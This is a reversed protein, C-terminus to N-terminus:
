AEDSKDKILRSNLEAKRINLQELMTTLKQNEANISSKANLRDYIDNQRSEIQDSM